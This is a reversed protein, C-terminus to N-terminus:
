AMAVPKPSWSRGRFCHWVDDIDTRSHLVPCKTACCVPIPFSGRSTQNQMRSCIFSFDHSNGDPKGSKQHRHLKIIIKVSTIKSEEQNIQHRQEAVKWVKFHKKLLSHLCGYPITGLMADRNCGHGVWVWPVPVNVTVATTGKAAARPQFKFTMHLWGEPAMYYYLPALPGKKSRSM